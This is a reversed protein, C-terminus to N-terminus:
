GRCAPGAGRTSRSACRWTPRSTPARRRGGGRRRLRPVPGARRGGPRDHAGPPVAPGERRAARRRRGGVPPEMALLAVIQLLHNQVVDRLAGVSEYFKGRGGVGFDEAMTIQVSSIFNRNWVPELLSNAFRFVLLNEVSEKGLFHDIRFIASRPSPGTAPVDNLERASQGTAASRSRSSSGAASPRARGPRPGAIVDDFLAPPIALYFLPDSSGAAAAREALSTSRRRGRPLRGSVYTLRDLLRDVCTRTSTTSRAGRDVGRSGSASATTTGTRRRCASSRSRSGATPRWTTSRRSSSRARGPRRHRRVAGARRWRVPASTPGCAGVRDPHPPRRARDDSPTSGDRRRPRRVPQPPRRHGEHDLRDDHQSVFRAFLAASIVPRPSAALRVAENVTWRGEGSDAAYGRSARSTPRRRGAGARAPRAAVLARRQGHQWARARGDVDIGLDSQGRPHRLGRRLGAHPRVRHRQPGDEHLPRRGVPGVHAFGGDAPRCRTSSPSPSRAVHEDTGGVM